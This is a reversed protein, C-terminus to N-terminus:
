GKTLQMATWAVAALAVAGLLIYLPQVTRKREEIV